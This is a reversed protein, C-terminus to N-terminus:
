VNEEGKNSKYYLYLILKDLNYKLEPSCAEEKKVKRKM